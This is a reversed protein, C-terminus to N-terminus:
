GAEEEGGGGVGLITLMCSAWQYISRLCGLFSGFVFSCLQKLCHGSVTPIDFIPFLSFFSSVDTSGGAFLAVTSSSHTLVLPPCHLLPSQFWPSARFKKRMALFPLWCLLKTRLYTRQTAGKWRKMSLLGSSMRWLSRFSHLKDPVIIQLNHLKDPVILMIVLPVGFGLINDPSNDIFHGDTAIVILKQNYPDLPHM